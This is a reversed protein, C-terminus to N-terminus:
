EITRTSDGRRIFGGSGQFRPNRRPPSTRPRAFSPAFSAAPSITQTTRTVDRRRADGRRRRPTAHARVRGRRSPPSALFFRRSIWASRVGVLVSSERRRRAVRAPARSSERPVRDRHPTGQRRRSDSHASRTTGPLARARTRPATESAGCTPTRTSTRFERFRSARSQFIHRASDGEERPRRRPDRGRQRAAADRGRRGSGRGGRRRGGRHVAAHLRVFDGADADPGSAGDGSSVVGDGRVDGRRHSALVGRRLRHLEEDGREDPALLRGRRVDGPVHGRPHLEFPNVELVDGGPVVAPRRRQRDILRGRAVRLERAHGAGRDHVQPQAFVRVARARDRPAYLLQLARDLAPARDRIRELRRPRLEVHRPSHRYGLVVRRQRPHSSSTCM